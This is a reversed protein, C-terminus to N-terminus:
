VPSHSRVQRNDLHIEDPPVMTNTGTGRWYRPQPLAAMRKDVEAQDVRDQVSTQPGGARRHVVAGALLVLVSGVSVGVGGAPVAHASSVVLTVVLEVVQVAIAAVTFSMVRGSGQSAARVLLGLSGGAAGLALCSTVLVLWLYWPALQSMETWQLVSGAIALLGGVIVLV